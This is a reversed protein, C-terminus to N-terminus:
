VILDLIKGQDIEKVPDKQPASKGEGRQSLNRKEKPNERKEEERIMLHESEKTDQVEEKKHDMEKQFQLAFQKKEVDAHQQQVQQIKSVVSTQLLIQQMDVARLM